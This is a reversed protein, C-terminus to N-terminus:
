GAISAGSTLCRDRVRRPPICRTELLVVLAPQRRERDPHIGAAREGFSDFAVLRQVIQEAPEDGIGAEHMGPVGGIRHAGLEVAVHLLPDGGRRQVEQEERELEIPDIIRHEFGGHRIRREAMVPRPELVDALLLGVLEFVADLLQEVLFRHGAIRGPVAQEVLGDGAQAELDVALREGDLRREIQQLIRRLFPALRCGLRQGRGELGIQPQERQDGIREGLVLLDGVAPAAERVDGVRAMERVPDLRFHHLRQHRRHALGIRTQRM